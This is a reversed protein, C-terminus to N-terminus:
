LFFHGHVYLFGVSSWIFKGLFSIRGTVNYWFVLHMLFLFFILFLLLFPWTVYLPLDILIVGSKEGSVIFALLDQFSRMCVRLSCLHCGLNSYGAFNEILMSPSVLNNWSLVLNVCNDKWLDLGVFFLLYFVGVCPPFTCGLFLLFTIKKWCVWFFIVLCIYLYCWFYCSSVIM